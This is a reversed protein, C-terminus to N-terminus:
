LLRSILVDASHNITSGQAERTRVKSMLFVNLEPSVTLIRMKGGLKSVLDM